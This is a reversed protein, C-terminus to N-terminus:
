FAGVKNVLHTKCPNTDKLKKTVMKGEALIAICGVFSPFLLHPLNPNSCINVLADLM